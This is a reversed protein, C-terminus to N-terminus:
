AQDDCHACRPRALALVKAFPSPPKARDRQPCDSGPFTSDYDLVM